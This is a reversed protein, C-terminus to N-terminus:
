GRVRAPAFKPDKSVANRFELVAAAEDGKELYGNGREFHSQASRSCGAAALVVVLLGLGLRIHRSVNV